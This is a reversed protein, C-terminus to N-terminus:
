AKKSYDEYAIAVHSVSVAAHFCRNDGGVEAVNDIAADQWRLVFWSTPRDTQRDIHKHPVGGWDSGGSWMAFNVSRCIKNVGGDSVCM